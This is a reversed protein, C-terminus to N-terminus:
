SCFILFCSQIQISLQKTTAVGGSNAFRITFTSTGRATPTGSIVGTAPNLSLGAPLSGTSVSWTGSQNGVNRLQASYAESVKGVPLSETAIVPAGVDTIAIALPQTDSVNLLDRFRITFPYTGTTTPTGSILGTNPNLGLGPPLQGSAVDWVGQRHDKTQLTQAYPSHKVGSALAVTSIEPATAEIIISLDRTSIAGAGDTFRVTFDSVAPGAPTGSIVGTSPTLTLGPPLSGTAISWAGARNDVTHLQTAYPVSAVGNPLATTAIIAGFETVLISLARTGVNGAADQFRVTFDSKGLATPTGSIVGSGNNLGLGAPLAGQSISWTGAVNNRSQLRASYAAGKMGNPLSATSILPAEGAEGVTVSYVKAAVRGDTDRFYVGFQHAGAATPTGSIVGTSPNISLGPPLAGAGISWTGARGDSTRVQASYPAGLTGAPLTATAIQPNSARDVVRVTRVKSVGKKHGKGGPAVVRLFTVGTQTMRVNAAYTSAVLRIRRLTSWNGNKRRQLLVTGTTLPRVRGSVLVSEGKTVNTDTLSIGVRYKPNPAAEAGTAVLAPALMAALIVLLPLVRSRVLTRGMTKVVKGM